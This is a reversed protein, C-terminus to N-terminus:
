KEKINSELIDLIERVAEKAPDSLVTCPLTGIVEDRVVKLAALFGVRYGVDSGERFIEETM